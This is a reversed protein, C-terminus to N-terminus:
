NAADHLLAPTDHYEPGLVAVLEGQAPRTGDIWEFLEGTGLIFFWNGNAAQIWKEGRRGWNSSYNPSSVFGHLTDLQRALTPLDDAAAEGCNGRQPVPAEHLLSPDAHFSANLTEVVEGDAPRTGQEWRYVRGDPVIFFWNRNRNQVWKEGRGGWDTAYNGTFEFGHAQDLNYAREEASEGCADGGPDVANHLLSPDVHYDANLQGIFRGRPPRSNTEWKTVGGDPTIYYWNRSGDIIWKEGLGGWNVAYNGSYAFEFEQDWAFARVAATSADAQEVGCGGEPAQAAHILSPLTHFAESLTGLLEGDIPTSVRDWAYVDGNPLIFFWNREGDIFWKEGRGGWNTNYDGSSRFGYTEDMTLARCALAADVEPAGEPVDVNADIWTRYSPVSIFNNNRIRVCANEDGAALTAGSTVGLLQGSNLIAGGSDGGCVVQNDPGPDVVYSGDEHHVSSRDEGYTETVGVYEVIGSRRVGTQMGENAGFGVIRLTRGARPDASALPTVPANLDESFRLIALDPGSVRYADGHVFRVHPADASYDPHIVLANARLTTNDNRTVYVDSAGAVNDVCHAATLITRAEIVTGSCLFMDNGVQMRLKLVSPYAQADDISGFRISQSTAEYGPTYEGTEIGGEGCGLFLSAFCVIVTRGSVYM